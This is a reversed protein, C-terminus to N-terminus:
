RKMSGYVRPSCTRSEVLYGTLESHDSGTGSDGTLQRANYHLRISQKEDFATMGFARAKVLPPLSRGVQGDSVRRFHTGQIVWGPFRLTM